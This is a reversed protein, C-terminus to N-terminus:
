AIHARSEVVMESTSPVVERLTSSGELLGTVPGSVLSGTRRQTMMRVFVPLDQVFYRRWLRTPEQVLRYLWELGQEQMWQPARNLKGALMDLAGGVGMCVPVGLEQMHTRIWQDQRPAGFAVFLMDPAAEQIRQVMEADQEPTFPGMPPTYAGVIQAGPYRARLADAAQAAIGEGAGLLFLRYGKEASLRACATVLDVGTVRELLPDGLLRAGWLLPMGDPVVLDASNILTRFAADSSALRLFDVNVTVLQHPQRSRVFAEIRALAGTCDIKDIWTDLLNVRYRM